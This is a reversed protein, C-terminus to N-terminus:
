AVVTSRSTNPFSQPRQQQKTLVCHLQHMLNRSVKGTKFWSQSRERGKVLHQCHRFMIMFVNLLATSVISWYQIVLNSIKASFLYLINDTIIKSIHENDINKLSALYLYM